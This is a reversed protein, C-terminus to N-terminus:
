NMGCIIKGITEPSAGKPIEHNGVRIKKDYGNAMLFKDFETADEVLGLEYAKRAATGSGEGKNITLIVMEEATESNSESANEKESTKPEEESTSEKEPEENEESINEKESGVENEESISEEESSVENEESISEEESSVEKGESLSEKESTEKVSESVTEKESDANTDEKSSNEKLVTSEVMGLELARKKIDEDSMKKNANVVFIMIVTMVIIGVGLGRFYYKKNM